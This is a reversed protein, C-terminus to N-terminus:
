LSVAQLDSDRIECKVTCGDRCVPPADLGQPSHRPHLPPGILWVRLCLLLIWSRFFLPPGLHLVRYTDGVGSFLHSDLWWLPQCAGKSPSSM